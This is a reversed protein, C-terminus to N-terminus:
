IENYDRKQYTKNKLILFLNKHLMIKYTFHRLIEMMGLIAVTM